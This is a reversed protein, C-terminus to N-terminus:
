EHAPMHLRLEVAVPHFPTQPWSLICWPAVIVAATLHDLEMSVFSLVEAHAGSTAAQAHDYCKSQECCACRESVQSHVARCHMMLQM